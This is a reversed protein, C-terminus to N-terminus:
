LSEVQGSPLLRYQKGCSCDWAVAWGSPIAGEPMSVMKCEHNTEDVVPIINSLLQAEKALEKGVAVNADFGSNVWMAFKNVFGSLRLALKETRALGAIRERLKQGQEHAIVGAVEGTLAHTFLRVAASFGYDQGRWWAACAADTGDWQPDQCTRPNAAFTKRLRVLEKAIPVPLHKFEDMVQDVEAVSVSENVKIRKRLKIAKLTLIFSRSAEWAPDPPFM